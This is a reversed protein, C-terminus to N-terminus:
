AANEAYPVAHTAAHPAAMAQAPYKEQHGRSAINVETMMDQAHRTGPLREHLDGRIFLMKRGTKTKVIDVRTVGAAAAFCNLTGLWYPAPNMPTIAVAAVTKYKM